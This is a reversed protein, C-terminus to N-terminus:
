YRTWKQSHSGRLQTSQLSVSSPLKCHRLRNVFAKKELFPYSKQASELYARVLTEAVEFPPMEFPDVLLDTDLVEDDLYFSAKATPVTSNIAHANHTRRHAGHQSDTADEDDGPLGGYYATPCDASRLNRLWQIEFAKGAIDTAKPEDNRMLDADALDQEGAASSGVEASASADGREDDGVPGRYKDTPDGVTAVADAVDEVM